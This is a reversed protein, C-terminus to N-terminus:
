GSAFFEKQDVTKNFTTALPCTNQTKCFGNNIATPTGKTWNFGGNINEM